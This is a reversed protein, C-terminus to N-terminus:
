IKSEGRSVGLLSLFAFVFFIPCVIFIMNYNQGTLDIIWGNLIPGVAAALTAAIFYLGSYTGMLEESTSTDLVMPLGNINIAAWAIGGIVLIGVIFPVSPVFYAALLGAAFLILGGLMTKKRGIKSALFGSPIAFIIFSIYSAALIFAASSEKVGLTNVAYSSFFTEVSNFGVMYFFITLILLSLSRANEKPINRLQKFVQLGGEVEAAEVLEKPEKIKWFLIAVATLTLLGGFWFPLPRYLNYLFGGVIFALIGGIGAMLNIVGNAQSRLPSPILDPMLAFLPTRWLAMSVLMVGSAALLFIMPGKLQNMQGNLELPIMQPALPILVFAIVAIPAFILIYPMRRGLRTHTRDSIPGMIPQIFFAAINDLSMILGTMTASLGFGLSSVSLHTDFAPSGAQLFIPMYTNYIMWMLQAAFLGFGITFAKKYDLKM